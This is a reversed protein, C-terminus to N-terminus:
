LLVSTAQRSPVGLMEPFLIYWLSCKFHIRIKLVSFESVSLVEYAASLIEVLWRVGIGFEM